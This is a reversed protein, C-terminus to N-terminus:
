RINLFNRYAPHISWTIKDSRNELSTFLDPDDTFHTFNKGGDKICSIIGLKFIFNALDSPDRYVRGDVVPIDDPRRGRIFKAEIVASIESFSFEKDTARLADILQELESFQHLHEKILDDRRNRGFEELSYRIHDMNIKTSANNKRAQSAAMRCLQGMWRPRRNSFASIAEFIRADPDAGWVIPSIFAQDIIKNYDSRITYKSEACGPHNRKIYSLIRNALIDRMNKKTWFIEVIYQEAKDLDELHRLCSWVDSRVTARIKINTLDFALSRIASFFSGVRAQYEPTNQYKADIDDVLFWVDSNGNTGQYNRLLNSLDNPISSRLEVSLAPLKGVIRSILGGVINKSKLGELESAEVISIEDSSLAFNIRKGIELIIRKCIIQKWYTELYAQDKGEFDGLGLLDNGKARVIIPANYAAENQLRHQLRALLASKGMGKRASVISLAQSKDFFDDFEEYEVFYSNLIDPSEDEGAENGFLDKDKFNLYPM